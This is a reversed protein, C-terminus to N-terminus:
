ILLESNTSQIEKHNWSPIESFCLCIVSLNETTIWPHLSNMRWQQYPEYVWDSVCPPEELNKWLFLGTPKNSLQSSPLHFYFYLHVHSNGFVGILLVSQCVCAPCVSVSHWTESCHNVHCSALRRSPHCLCTTRYYGAKHQLPTYCWCGRVDHWMVAAVVHPFWCLASNQLWTM